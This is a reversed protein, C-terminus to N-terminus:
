ITQTQSKNEAQSFLRSSAASAGSMAHDHAYEQQLPFACDVCPEVIHGGKDFVKIPLKRIRHVGGVRQVLLGCM